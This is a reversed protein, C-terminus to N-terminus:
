ASTSSPTRWVRMVSRASTRVALLLPKQAGGLTRGTVGELWEIAGLVENRLAAPLGEGGQAERWASTSITFGPPVPLDLSALLALNSGKLGLAEAPDATRDAAGRMFTFLRKAM